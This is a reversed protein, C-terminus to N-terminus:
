QGSAYRRKLLSWKPGKGVKLTLNIPTNSNNVAKRNKNKKNEKKLRLIKYFPHQDRALNVGM